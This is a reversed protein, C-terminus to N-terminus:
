KPAPKTPKIRILPPDCDDWRKTILAICVTETIAHFTHILGSPSRTCMGKSMHVIHEPGDEGEKWVMIGAGSVCLLYETFEPHYHNGRVKGPRFYVLSFEAIHEEPLFTLIAGRGDLVTDINCVPEM